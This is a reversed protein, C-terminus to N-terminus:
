CYIPLYNWEGQVFVSLIIRGCYVSDICTIVVAYVQQSCTASKRIVVRRDTYFQSNVVSCYGM